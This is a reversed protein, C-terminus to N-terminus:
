SLTEGSSTCAPYAPSAQTQLDLHLNSLVLPGMESGTDGHRHPTALLVLSEATASLARRSWLGLTKSSTRPGSLEQGILSGELGAVKGTKKPAELHSIKLKSM